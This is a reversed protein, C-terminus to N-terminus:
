RAKLTWKLINGLGFDIYEKTKKKMNLPYSIMEISLLAKSYKCYKVRFKIQDGYKRQIGLVDVLFGTQDHGLSKISRPKIVRGDSIRMKLKYRAMCWEKPYYWTTLLSEPRGRLTWKNSFSIDADIDLFTGISNLVVEHKRDLICKILLPLDLVVAILLIPVFSYLALVFDHIVAGVILYLILGVAADLFLAALCEHIYPKTVKRILKSNINM